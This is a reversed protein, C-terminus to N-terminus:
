SPIGKSTEAVTDRPVLSWKFVLYLFLMFGMKKGLEKQVGVMFGRRRLFKYELHTIKKTIFLFLEVLM